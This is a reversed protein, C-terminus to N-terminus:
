PQTHPENPPRCHGTHRCTPCGEGRCRYCLPWPEGVDQPRDQPGEAVAARYEAWSEFEPPITAAPHM